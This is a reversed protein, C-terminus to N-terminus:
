GMIINNHERKKKAMKQAAISLNEEDELFNNIKIIAKQYDPIQVKEYLNVKQTAKKRAHDLLKIRSSLINKEIIIRSIDKIIVIGDLFWKPSNFLSFNKISFIIDRLIPVNIGAIKKSDLILERITVISPDFEAWLSIINKYETLKKNILTEVAKLESKVRQVETRLASEKNKITPLANLRTNLQKNLSQLSTKTYHFKINM